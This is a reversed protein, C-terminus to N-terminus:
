GEDDAAEKKTRRRQVLEGLLAVLRHRRPAPLQPWSPLILETDLSLSRRSRASRRQSRRQVETPEETRDLM